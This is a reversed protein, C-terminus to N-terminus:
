VFSKVLDEYSQLDPLGYKIAMRYADEYDDRMEQKKAEPALSCAFACLDLLIMCLMKERKM